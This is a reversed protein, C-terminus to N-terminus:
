VLATAEASAVKKQARRARAAHNRAEKKATEAAVRDDHIRQLEAFREECRQAIVALDGALLECARRHNVPAYMRVHHGIIRSWKGVVGVGQLVDVVWRPIAAIGSGLDTADSLLTHTHHNSTRLIDSKPHTAILVLARRVDVIPLSGNHGRGPVVDGLVFEPKIGFEEPMIPMTSLAPYRAVIRNLADDDSMRDYAERAEEGEGYKAGAEVYRGEGALRAGEAEAALGTTRLENRVDQILEATSM